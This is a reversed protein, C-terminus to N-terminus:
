LGAKILRDSHDAVVIKLAHVDDYIGQNREIGDRYRHYTDVYCQQIERLQPLIENEQTIELKTLRKKVERIDEKMDELCELRNDISTSMRLFQEENAVRMRHIEEHVEDRLQGMEGRMEDRLQGMEGRMEDRLQGMEGRMEDRMEHMEDRLENIDSKIEHRLEGMAEKLEEKTMCYRGTEYRYIIKGPHQNYQIMDSVQKCTIKHIYRYNQPQKKM